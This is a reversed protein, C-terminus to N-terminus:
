RSPLDEGMLDRLDDEAAQREDHEAQQHAPMAPEDPFGVHPKFWERWEREILVELEVGLVKSCNALLRIRPNRNQGRELRLYTGRSIGTLECMQAQTVGRAM